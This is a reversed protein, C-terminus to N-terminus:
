NMLIRRFRNVARIHRYIAGLSEELIIVLNKPKGQYTAQNYTLTPLATSIYDTEARGRAQKLTNVVEALEMRGYIESSNEEDKMQQVAFIM